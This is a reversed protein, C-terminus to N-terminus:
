LKAPDFATERYISNILEGGIRGEMKKHVPVLARKFALREEPTPVYVQTKGSKRVGELASDNEEKAIKNAYDTSEKMAKELQERIDAPLGEWFKKNVIVAYGLYGHDSVTM